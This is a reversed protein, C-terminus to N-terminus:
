IASVLCVNMCNEATCFNKMVDTKAIIKKLTTHKHIYMYVYM